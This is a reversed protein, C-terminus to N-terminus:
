RRIFFRKIYSLLHRGLNIGIYYTAYCRGFCVFSFNIITPFNGPKKKNTIFEKFSSGYQYLRDDRNQTYVRCNTACVLRYDHKKARWSFEYDAGYHPLREDDFGKIKKIVAFPILMGRGSLIDSEYLGALDLNNINHGRHPSLFRARMKNLNRSTYFIKGTDKHVCTSGIITNLNNSAAAILSELYYEEVMTDDNMLLIHDDADVDEMIEKIGANVAGTWWLESSKKLVLLRADNFETFDIRETGHDVVVIKFQRYTQSLLQSILTHISNPRNFVPVVIWLHVKSKGKLIFDSTVVIRLIHM